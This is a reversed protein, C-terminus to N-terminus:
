LVDSWDPILIAEQWSGCLSICVSRCRGDLELNPLYGSGIAYYAFNGAQGLFAANAQGRFLNKFDTPGGPRVFYGFSGTWGYIM